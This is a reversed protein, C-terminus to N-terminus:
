WPKLDIIPSATWNLIKENSKLYVSTDNLVQHFADGAQAPQPFLVAQKM